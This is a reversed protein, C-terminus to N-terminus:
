TRDLIKNKFFVRYRDLTGTSISVAINHIRHQLLLYFIVFGVKNLGIETRIGDTDAVEIANLGGFAYQYPVLYYTSAKQLRGFLRRNGHPSVITGMRREQVISIM